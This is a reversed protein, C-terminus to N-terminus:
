VRVDSSALEASIRRAAERVLQLAHGQEVKLPIKRVFPMTLAAAAIEGRLVPAALDVIGPVIDSPHEDYGNAQARDCRARFAALRDAPLDPSFFTEWRQRTEPTQFAYLVTGSGTLVLPQRYGIRVSFGLLSASEMRAAVVIDGDARLALHCSQEATEALDRMVPLAVELISKVPAQQMGLAFLRTTPLYGNGVQEIFGRYELVQIMRFLEGTSRDLAQTIMSISMPESATSILELIDLGKELAPARYRQEEAEVSTKGAGAVIQGERKM